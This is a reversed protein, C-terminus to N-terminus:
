EFFNQGSYEDVLKYSTSRPAFTVDKGVANHRRLHAGQHPALASTSAALSLVLAALAGIM